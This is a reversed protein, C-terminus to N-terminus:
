MPSDIYCVFRLQQHFLIRQNTWFAESHAKQEMEEMVLNPVIVSVPSDMATGNTSSVLFYSIPLM